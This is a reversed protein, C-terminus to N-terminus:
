FELNKLPMKSLDSLIIDELIEFIVCHPDIRYQAQKVHLFDIFTDDLLDENTINLSFEINQDAFSKFSKNIMMRTLNSMLGSRRAAELFHSPSIVEGDDEIRALCEYKAIKQTQNDIIPQFYPIVRDEELALRFKQIWTTEVESRKLFPDSANYVNYQSPIGRM